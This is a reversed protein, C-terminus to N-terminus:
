QRQQHMTSHRKDSPHPFFCRASSVNIWGVGNGTDWQILAPNFTNPNTAPGGIVTENYTEAGITINEAIWSTINRPYIDFPPSFTSSTFMHEGTFTTLASVVEAPVLTSHFKGLVAFLPAYAFDASHSMVQPKSILSSNEKGVINWLHLALLSVYRNMDFGYSRDWPGAVNKLNPNWLQGVAEWTSKIMTPAKARMVSDAPLYKAWLTLALLSVGTYTGSNFESLTNARDFLDIIEQAYKEGSITMNSNNLRRGTWGSVFARM